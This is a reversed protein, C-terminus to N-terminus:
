RGKTQEEMQEIVEAINAKLRKPLYPLDALSKAEVPDFKVFGLRDRAREHNKELKVVESYAALAEKRLPAAEDRKGDADLETARSYLLDALKLHALAGAGPEEADFRAAGLPDSPRVRPPRPPEPPTAPEPEPKATTTATASSPSPTTTHNPSPEPKSEGSTFVLVGLVILVVVTLGVILLLIRNQKQKPAAQAPRAAQPRSPPAGRPRGRPAAPAAPAKRAPVVVVAGCAGCTFEAGPEFEVDFTANCKKCIAETM